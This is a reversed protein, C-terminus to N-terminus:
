AIQVTADLKATPQVMSLTIMAYKSAPDSSVERYTMPPESMTPIPRVLATPTTM